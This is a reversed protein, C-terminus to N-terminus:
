GSSPAVAESEILVVILTQEVFKVLSVIVNFFSRTITRGAILPFTCSITSSTATYCDDKVVGLSSIVDM